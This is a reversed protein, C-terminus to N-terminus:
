TTVNLTNRLFCSFVALRVTTACCGSVFELGRSDAPISGTLTSKMTPCSRDSRTWATWFDTIPVDEIMEEVIGAFKPDFRASTSTWFEQSRQALQSPTEDHYRDM